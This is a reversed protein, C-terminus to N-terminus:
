KADVIPLTLSDVSQSSTDFTVLGARSIQCNSIKTLKPFYLTVHYPSKLLLKSQIAENSTAPALGSLEIVQGNITQNSDGSRFTARQGIKLGQFVAETVSATVIASDCDLLRMLIQGANVYENPSVLLEWLRGSIPVQIQVESLKEVRRREAVLDRSASSLENEMGSLRARLEALELEIGLSRQASQPTDNNGDAIFTGERAADLEVLTAQRKEKLQNILESAVREERISKDLYAESVAGRKFLIRARELAKIDEAHSAEAAAMQAQIESIQRELTAIRGKRFRDNQQGLENQHKELIVKKAKLVEITTQLTEQTRKLNNLATRDPHSNTITVLGAGSRLLSGFQLGTEFSVEGSIPSRVNILKANIVAETSTVAFIRQLPLWGLVLAALLALFAKVATSLKVNKLKGLLIAPGQTGRDNSPVASPTSTPIPAVPVIDENGEEEPNESELSWAAMAAELLEHQMKATFPLKGHDQNLAANPEVDQSAEPSGPPQKAAKNMSISKIFIQLPTPERSRCRKLM